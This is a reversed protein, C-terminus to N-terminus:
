LRPLPWPWETRSTIAETSRTSPRRTGTTNPSRRAPVRRHQHSCAVADLLFGAPRWLKRVQVADDAGGRAPANRMRAAVARVSQM